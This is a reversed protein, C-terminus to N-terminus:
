FMSDKTNARFQIVTGSPYLFAKRRKSKVVKILGQAELPKLTRKKVHGKHFITEKEVFDLIDEISVMKDSFESILIEKLEDVKTSITYETLCKSVENECTEFLSIQTSSQAENKHMLLGDSVKWLSEKIKNFGIQNRTFILLYYLETNKSNYFPYSATFVRSEGKCSRLVHEIILKNYDESKYEDLHDRTLGKYFPLYKEPYTKINRVTDNVMHNFILESYNEENLIAVIKELKIVNDAVKYPDIFFFSKKMNINKIKKLVYDVHDNAKMCKFDINIGTPLNIDSILKRLHEVRECDYDNLYVHFIPAYENKRIFASISKLAIIPSGYSGDVYEGANSFSDVYILNKYYKAQGLIVVWKYFYDQFYEHKAETQEGYPDLKVM